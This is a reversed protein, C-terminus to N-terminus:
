IKRSRQELDWLPRGTRGLLPKQERSGQEEVIHGRPWAVQRGGPSRDWLLGLKARLSKAPDQKCSRRGGKRQKVGVGGELNIEADKELKHELTGQGTLGM